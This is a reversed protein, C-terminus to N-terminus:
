DVATATKSLPSDTVTKGASTHAAVMVSEGRELVAVATSQFADLEFEYQKAYREKEFTPNKLLALEQESYKVTKPIAVEHVCSTRKQERYKERAAELVEGEDNDNNDNNTTNNTSGKQVGKTTTSSKNGGRQRRLREQEEADSARKKVADRFKKSLENPETQATEFAEM